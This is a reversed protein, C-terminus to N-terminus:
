DCPTGPDDERVCNRSEICTVSTLCEELPETEECVSQSLDCTASGLDFCDRSDVCARLCVCRSPPADLATADVAADAQATRLEVTQTECGALGALALFLIAARM